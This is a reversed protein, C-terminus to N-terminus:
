EEAAEAEILSALIRRARVAAGDTKLLVPNLAM